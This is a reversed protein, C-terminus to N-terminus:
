LNLTETFNGKSKYTLSNLDLWTRLTVPRKSEVRTWRIEVGTRLNEAKCDEPNHHPFPPEGYPRPVGTLVYKFEGEAYVYFQERKRKVTFGMRVYYREQLEQFTLMPVTDAAIELNDHTWWRGKHLFLRTARLRCGNWYVYQTEADFQTKYELQLGLKKKM